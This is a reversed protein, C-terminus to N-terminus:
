QPDSENLLIPVIGKSSDVTNQANKSFNEVQIDSVKKWKRSDPKLTEFDHTIKYSGGVSFRLEKLFKGIDDAWDGFSIYIEKPKDLIWLKIGNGPYRKIVTKIKDEIKSQIYWM